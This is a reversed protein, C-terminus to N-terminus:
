LGLFKRRYYLGCIDDVVRSPFKVVSVARLLCDANDLDGQTPEANDSMTPSQKVKGGARTAVAHRQILLISALSMVCAKITTNEADFSPAVKAIYAETVEREARDIEAQSVQLSVRYGAERYENADM